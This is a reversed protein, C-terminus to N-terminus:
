EWCHFVIHYMLDEQSSTPKQLPCKTLTATASCQMCSSTALLPVRILEHHLESWIGQQSQIFLAICVQILIRISLCLLVFICWHTSSNSPLFIYDLIM